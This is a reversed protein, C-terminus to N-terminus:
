VWPVFHLSAISTNQLFGQSYEGSYGATYFTGDEMLWDTCSESSTGRAIACKLNGQVGSPLKPTHWGSQTTANGSICAYNGNYGGTLVTGDRLNMVLHCASHTGGHTVLQVDGTYSHVPYGSNTSANTAILCWNTAYGWHYLKNSVSLASRNSHYEMNGWMYAATWEGYIGGTGPVLKGGSITTDLKITRDDSSGNFWTSLVFSNRTTTSGDNLQGHGNYGTGFMRGESTVICTSSHENGHLQVHVIKENTNLAMSPISPTSSQNTNGSGLQGYNNYGWMYLQGNEDIAACHGAGRGNVAYIRVINPTDLGNIKAPLYTSSDNTTGNRGCQGQSNHGWSYVDGNSTLALMVTESNNDGSKGMCIDVITESTPIQAKNGWQWNNTSGHGMQGYGNYGWMWVQGDNTLGAGVYATYELKKFSSPAVNGNTESNWQIPHFGAHNATGEGNGQQGSNDCGFGYIFGDTGIVFSSRYSGGTGTNGYSNQLQAVKGYPMVDATSLANIATVAATKATTIATQGEASKLEIATAEVEGVTTIFALESSPGVAELTKALYVLDKPAATAAEAKAKNVVDHIADNM